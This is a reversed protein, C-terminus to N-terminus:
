LYAIKSVYTFFPLNFRNLRLYHLAMKKPIFLIRNESCKNYRNTKIRTNSQVNDM